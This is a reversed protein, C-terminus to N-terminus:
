QLNFKKSNVEKLSITHVFKKFDPIKTAKSISSNIAWRAEKDLLEILNQNIKVEYKYDDYVANLAEKGMGTHRGTIEITKERNQKVFAEAKVLAMVIKKVIEPHKNVFDRRMVIVHTGNYLEDSDFIVVKDGLEKKAFFIHPEWAFYAGIDGRILANVMEPPRMSTIQVDEQKLGNAELFISMFYDSNTGPLTAVKKGRLDSPKMIGKDKRAIGKVEHHESVMAVVVVDNGQLISHMFPTEAMSSFDANDSLVADLALRGASFKQSVVKLGENEFFGEDLATFIIAPGLAIPEAYVLTEHSTQNENFLIFGLIKYNTNIVMTILILSSITLILSVYLFYKLKAM